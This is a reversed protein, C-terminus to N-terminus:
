SCLTSKISPLLEQFPWKDIFSLFVQSQMNMSCIEWSVSSQSSPSKNSLYYQFAQEVAVPFFNM